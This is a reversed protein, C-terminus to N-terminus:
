SRSCLTARWACELRQPDYGHRDSRGALGLVKAAAPRRLSEYLDLAIAPRNGSVIGALIEGLVVADILGTNMGQGGAPSHVHAADGMLILRGSRYSKALRHHLRFRSSWIVDLL